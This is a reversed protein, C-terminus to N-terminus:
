RGYIETLGRLREAIEDSFDNERCQWYWNGMTSGPLNIRAENGLGLLDQMPVVASNAVSSWVARVFDWHIEKGDTALYKLCFDRERRIQSDDRTSSKGTGSNGLAFM